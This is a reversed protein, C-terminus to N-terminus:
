KEPLFPSHHCAFLTFSDDKDLRTKRESPQFIQDTARAAVFLLSDPERQETRRHSKAPCGVIERLVDEILGPAARLLIVAYREAAACRFSFPM